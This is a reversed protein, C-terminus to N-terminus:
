QNKDKTMMYSFRALTQPSAIRLFAGALQSIANRRQAELDALASQDSESLETKGGAIVNVKQQLQVAFAYYMQAIAHLSSKEAQNLGYRTVETQERREFITPDQGHSPDEVPDAITKFLHNFFTFQSPNLSQGFCATGCIAVFGIIRFLLKM